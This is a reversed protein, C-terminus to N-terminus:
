KKRCVSMGIAVRQKPNPYKKKKAPTSLKKMEKAMCKSSVKKKSKAM